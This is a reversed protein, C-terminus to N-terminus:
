EKTKQKKIQEALRSGVTKKVEEKPQITVGVETFPNSKASAEKLKQIGQKLNNFDADPLQLAAKVILDFSEKDGVLTELDKAKEKDAREKEAQKFKLIEDQAAKLIEKAQELESKASDLASKEVMEVQKEVITMSESGKQKNVDSPKVEKVVESAVSTDGDSNVSKSEKRAKEIKKFAKELMEQDLLLQLYQNENVKSMTDPISDTEYLNKIIEFSNVKDELYKQYDFEDTEKEPKVYGMFMALIEADEYYLDFFKRLFDPLEMTVRVQQMKEIMEQSFTVGKFMLAANYNNAAGQEKSCLAIHAGEKNFDINSLRRKAKM